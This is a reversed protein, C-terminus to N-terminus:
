EKREEEKQPAPKQSAPRNRVILVSCSAHAAVAQSVAGLLLRGLAGYGHSGLVILDAGWRKAEDVIMRRPAGEIEAATIALSKEALNARLVGAAREVILHARRQEYEVAAQRESLVAFMPEAAVPFRASYASIIRVESGAPWLRQAVAQVAAESCPSGDIALLVKM